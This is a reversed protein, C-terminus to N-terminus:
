GGVPRHHGPTRGRTELWLVSRSSGPFLGDLDPLILTENRLEVAGRIGRQSPLPRRCPQHPVPLALIRVAPRVLLGAWEGRRNARVVLLRSRRDPVVPALGLCTGLDMVPVARDRRIVLGLVHAPAGPVPIPEGAEVIESVKALNLGFATPREGPLPDALLFVVIRGATRGRTPRPAMGVPALPEQPGAQASDSAGAAPRAGPLLRGPSIMLLYQQDIKLLADFCPAGDERLSAPLPFLCNAAVQQAQAVRDTLLGFPRGGVDVVVVHRAAATAPVEAGLRRGLHFVPIPGGASPLTGVLGDAGDQRCLQDARRVGRVCALDLGYTERGAGCRLVRLRRETTARHVTSM